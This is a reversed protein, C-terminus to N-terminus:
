RRWGPGLRIWLASGVVEEAGSQGFSEANIREPLWLVDLYSRIWCLM